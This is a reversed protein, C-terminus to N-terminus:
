LCSAEKGFSVVAATKVALMEEGLRGGEVIGCVWAGWPLDALTRMSVRAGPCRVGEGRRTALWGRSIVGKCSWIELFM